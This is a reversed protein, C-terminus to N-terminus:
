GSGQDNSTPNADTAAGGRPNQNKGRIGKGRNKGFGRGRAGRRFFGNDGRSHNHRNTPDTVNEDTSYPRWRGAGKGRRGRAAGRTPTPGDIQKQIERVEQWIARRRAGQPGGAVARVATDGLLDTDEEGPEMATAHAREPNFLRQYIPKGDPPATVGVARYAARTRQDSAWGYYSAALIM